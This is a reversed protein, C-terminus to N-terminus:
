WWQGDKGFDDWSKPGPPEPLPEVPIEPPKAYDSLERFPRSLGHAVMLLHQYHAIGADDLDGGNCGIRDPLHLAVIEPSPVQGKWPSATLGAELGRINSGGGILFMRLGKWRDPGRDKDYAISWVRKTYHDFLETGVSAAARDFLNTNIHDGIERRADEGHEDSHKAIRIRDLWEAPSRDKPLGQQALALVFQDVRDGGAVCVSASYFSVQASERDYLFISMDTTGAGIDILAYRGTEATRPDSFTFMGARTEAVVFTRRDSEEPLAPNDTSLWNYLYRLRQLEVGQKVDGTQALKEALFLAHEYFARGDLAQFVDMPAATNYSLDVDSGHHERVRENIQAIVNALYWTALEEPSVTNGDPLIRYGPRGNGV